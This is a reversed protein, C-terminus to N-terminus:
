SWCLGSQASEGSNRCPLQNTLAFQLDIGIVTSKLTGNAMFHGACISTAPERGSMQQARSVLKRQRAEPGASRVVRSRVVACDSSACNLLATM